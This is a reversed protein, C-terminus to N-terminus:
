HVLVNDHWTVAYVLNLTIVHNEHKSIIACLEGSNASVSRFLLSVSYEHKISKDAMGHNSVTCVYVLSCFVNMPM